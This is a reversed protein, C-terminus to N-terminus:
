RFADAYEGVLKVLEAQRSTGTKAFLHQLHTKVTAPSIGLVEAAAQVGGIEVIAHLVRVESPTLRYAQAIQELASPLDLGPERVFLAATAARALGAARRAGSTLPLVHALWRDGDLPLPVAIGKVGVGADGGNCAAFVDHLARDARGAVAALKGGRSRLLRGDDLMARGADNAFVIAGQADVLFVGVSLAALTDGLAATEAQQLDIVNGILVARRFHPALLSMRRRAEDDVLGQERSRGISITAISTSTKDLTTAVFDVLGQPEVWEKFFRSACLENYPMLSSASFVEGVQQLMFGPVLPNLKVYDSFYVRTFEVDDGWSHYRTGLKLIVDQSYIAAAVGRIFECARELAAPWLDPVLAADYIQGIIQSLVEVESM